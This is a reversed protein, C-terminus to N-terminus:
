QESHSSEARLGQAATLIRLKVGAPLRLKNERTCPVEAEGLPSTVGQWDVLIYDLVEDNLRGEKDAHNGAHRRELAVMAASDIRRLTFSAGQMHLEFREEPDIIQIGQSM